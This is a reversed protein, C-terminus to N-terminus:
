SAARLSEAIKRALASYNFPKSLLSVGPDLRGQHVIANRAYGTTYLVRLDPRHKRAEDALQRGNLGGPLIVDTFLLDISCQGELIKLATAADAAQLVTYGLEELMEATSARVSEEDEVVLITESGNSAAAAPHTDDVLEAESSHHRPLYIKVTTGHGLETYIKVHGGSQKAFGYVQSLGLGSGQGTQKTTFFPEFAKSVTESNMGVGTDTVSISVYQGESLDGERAVYGEDLFANATEVTLKGGGPMADRANVALNLLASELQNSDVLTPWTSSGLITEISIQEGLTRELLTALRGVLKNVNVSTPSLPQRRSFALLQQTLAAARKGGELAAAVLRHFDQGAEVSMNWRASRRTLMELSSTVVQLLNNFDHAIGGTLQGLSEMKQAQRLEAEAKQRHEMETRLGSNARALELARDQLQANAKALAQQSTGLVLVVLSAMVVLLAILGFRLLQRAFPEVVTQLYLSGLKQGNEIVPVIVALRDKEVPVRAPAMAPPRLRTDRTYEVFMTGNARYVAAVQVNPNEKLADVYERAARADEFALAASVTSALIRAETLTSGAILTSTYRTGGIVTAIGLVLLLGAAIFAATPAYRSRWGRAVDQTM